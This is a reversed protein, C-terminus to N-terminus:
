PDARNPEPEKAIAAAVLAAMAAPAGRKLSRVKRLPLPLGSGKIGEPVITIIHKGMGVAAGIEWLQRASSENSGSVLAVIADSSALRRRLVEAWKEGPAIREELWVEVNQHELARAFAEAWEDDEHRHSLFASRKTM